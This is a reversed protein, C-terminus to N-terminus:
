LHGTQLAPLRNKATVGTMQLTQKAPLRDEATVETILLIM